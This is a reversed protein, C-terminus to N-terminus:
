CRAGTARQTRHSTRAAMKVWARSGTPEGSALAEGCFRGEGELAVICHEFDPRLQLRLTGQGLLELGLLPTHVRVPSREGFASGALVSVRFGARDLVPVEPYHEFAPPMERLAKPLAIWLQAHVADEEAAPAAVVLDVDHAGAALALGIAWWYGALLHSVGIVLGRSPPDLWLEFAQAAVLGNLGDDERAGVLLPRRQEFPLAIMLTGSGPTENPYLYGREYRWDCKFVELTEKASTEAAVWTGPAIWGLRLLRDLAVGAAGTGYPPDLMILDYTAKAPGLTM